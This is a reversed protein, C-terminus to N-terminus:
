AHWGIRAINPDDVTLQDLLRKKSIGRSDKEMKAERREVESKIFVDERESWPVVPTDPRM